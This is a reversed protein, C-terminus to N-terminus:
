SPAIEDFVVDPYEECARRLREVMHERGGPAVQLISHFGRPGMRARTANLYETRHAWEEGANHLLHVFANFAAEDEHMLLQSADSILMVFVDPHPRMHHIGELWALWDLDNICEDLANWNWGFYPPFQWAASLEAFLGDQDRMSSGRVTRFEIAIQSEDCLPWTFSSRDEPTHAVLHVWPPVLKRLRRRDLTKIMRETWAAHCRTSRQRAASRPKSRDIRHADPDGSGYERLRGGELRGMRAAGPPPDCALEGERLDM